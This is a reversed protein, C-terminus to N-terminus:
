DYTDPGDRSSLPQYIVINSRVPEDGSGMLERRNGYKRPKLKMAIWKREDIQLRASRIGNLHANDAIEIIADAMYDAQCERAIEYMGRFEDRFDSDRSLWRLVTSYDPMDARKCISNLSHGTAILECIEEALESTYKTPRGGAHKM